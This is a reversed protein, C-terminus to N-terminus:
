KGRIYVCIIKHIWLTWSRRILSLTLQKDEESQRFKSLTIMELQVWKDAFSKNKEIVSFSEVTYILQM